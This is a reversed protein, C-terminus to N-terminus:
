QDDTACPCLGRRRPRGCFACRAPTKITLTRKATGLKMMMSAAVGTSAWVLAQAFTLHV